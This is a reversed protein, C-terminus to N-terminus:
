NATATTTADVKEVQSVLERCFAPLDDPNRSSIMPFSGGTCVVLEEDVWDAGANRYDVALSPWSTIRRGRVADVDILVWGGHCIVAVPRGTAVFRRVFDRAPEQWRLLDGNAVGGPLVLASYEEARAQEAPEDVRFKDAPDLHNFAQVEGSEVSILRPTGGAEQVAKWPETLEVQEIGEKSVLFAVSKGSISM